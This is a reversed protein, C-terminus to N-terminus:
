FSTSGKLIENKTFHKREEMITRIKNRKEEPYLLTLDLGFHHAVTMLVQFPRPEAAMVQLQYEVANMSRCSLRDLVAQRFHEMHGPTFEYWALVYKFAGVYLKM